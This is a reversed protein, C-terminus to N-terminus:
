TLKDTMIKLCLYNSLEVFRFSDKYQLGPANSKTYTEFINMAIIAFIYACLLILIMIFVMSQLAKLITLVIIKLSGFRVVLKLSRLIRLTRLERATKGLGSANSSGALLLFEPIATQKTPTRPHALFDRM